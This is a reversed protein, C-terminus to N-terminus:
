LKEFFPRKIGVNFIVFECLADFEPADGSVAPWYYIKALRELGRKVDLIETNM